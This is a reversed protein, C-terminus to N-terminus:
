AVLEEGSEVHHDVRRLGCGSVVGWDMEMFM